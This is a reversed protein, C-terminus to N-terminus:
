QIKIKSLKKNLKLLYDKLEKCKKCKVRSEIQSNEENKGEKAETSIKSLQFSSKKNRILEQISWKRNLDRKGEYEDNKVNEFKEKM